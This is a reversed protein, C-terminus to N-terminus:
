WVWRSRVVMERGHISRPGCQPQQVSASAPTLSGWGCRGYDDRRTQGWAGSSERAVGGFEFRPQDVRPRNVTEVTRFPQGVTKVRKRKGCWRLEVDPELATVM